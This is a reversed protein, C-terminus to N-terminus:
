QFEKKGENILKRFPASTSSALAKMSSCGNMWLTSVKNSFPQEIFEEHGLSNELTSKV